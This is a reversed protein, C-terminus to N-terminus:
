HVISIGTSDLVLQHGGRAAPICAVDEGHLDSRFLYIRLSSYLSPYVIM